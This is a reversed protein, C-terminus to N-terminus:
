KRLEVEIAGKFAEFPQAGVLQTNNVFFTPTGQVGRRQGEQTEERVRQTHKGSDLCANFAEGNLGLEVAFRNFNDKTFAGRGQTTQTSYLTEHYDWFKGQDSACLAAEAAWVSEQGLVAMQKFEVRVKGTKVYESDIQRATSM